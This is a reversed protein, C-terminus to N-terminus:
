HQFWALACVLQEVLEEMTGNRSSVEMPQCMPEGLGFAVGSHM